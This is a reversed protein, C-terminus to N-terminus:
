LVLLQISPSFFNLSRSLKEAKKPLGLAASYIKQVSPQSLHTRAKTLLLLSHFFSSYMM